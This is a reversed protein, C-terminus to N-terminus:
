VILAEIIVRIKAETDTRIHACSDALEEKSFSQTVHKGSNTSIELISTGPLQGLDQVNTWNFAAIEGAGKLREKITAEVKMLAKMEQLVYDLETAM